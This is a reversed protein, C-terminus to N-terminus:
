SSLFERQMEDHLALAFAGRKGEIRRTPLEKVTVELGPEKLLRWVHRTVLTDGHWFIRDRNSDDVPAGDLTRSQLVFPRVPFSEGDEGSCVAFISSKFPLLGRGDSSTAEPFFAISTGARLAKQVKKVFRGIGMRNRRDVFLTGAAAIAQGMVPWWLTELRSVFVVPALSQLVPIDLYGTHNAVYLAPGEGGDVVREARVRVRFVWLAFRAWRIRIVGLCAERTKRYPSLWCLACLVGFIATVTVLLLIRIVRM